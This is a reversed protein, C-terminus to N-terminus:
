VMRLLLQTIQKIIQFYLSKIFGKWFPKQTLEFISELIIYFLISAIFITGNWRNDATLRSSLSGFQRMLPSMSQAL